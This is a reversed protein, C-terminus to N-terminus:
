VCHVLIQGVPRHWVLVEAFQMIGVLDALVKHWQM